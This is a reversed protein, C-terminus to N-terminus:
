VCYYRDTMHLLITEIQKKQRTVENLNEKLSTTVINFADSIEDVDTKAKKEKVNKTEQEINNGDAIMTASKILKTIPNLIYKSSFAIIISSIIIFAIAIILFITKGTNITSQIENLDSLNGLYNLYLVGPVAFMIIAVLIIILIIKIQTSKFM